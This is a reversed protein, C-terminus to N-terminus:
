NKCDGDCYGGCHPCLGREKNEQAHAEAYLQRTSKAPKYAYRQSEKKLAERWYQNALKSMTEGKRKTPTIDRM